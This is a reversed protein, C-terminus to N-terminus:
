RLLFRRYVAFMLLTLGIGFGAGGVVDMVTHVGLALRSIAITTSYVFLLVTPWKRMTLIAATALTFATGAHGSPFSADDSCWPNCNPAPCPICTRPIPWVTKIIFTFLLITILSLGYVVVFAKLKPQKARRRLWLWIVFVAGALVLGAEPSGFLSVVAWGEDVM